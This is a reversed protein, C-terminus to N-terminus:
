PLTQADIPRSRNMEISVGYTVHVNKDWANVIRLGM